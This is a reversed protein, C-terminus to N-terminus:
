YSSSLFASIGKQSISISSVPSYSRRRIGGQWTAIQGELSAELFIKWLGEEVETCKWKTVYSALPQSVNLHGWYLDKTGDGDLDDLFYTDLSPSPNVYSPMPLVRLIGPNEIWEVTKAMRIADSVTKGTTMVSYHAELHNKLVRARRWQDTMIRLSTMLLIGTILLALLVELLTLGREKNLHM